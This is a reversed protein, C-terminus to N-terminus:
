KPVQGGIGLCLRHLTHPEKMLYEATLAGWPFQATVQFHRLLLVYDDDVQIGLARSEQLLRLDEQFAAQNYQDRAEYAGLQGVFNERTWLFTIGPPIPGGYASMTLGVDREAKPLLYVYLARCRESPDIEPHECYFLLGRRAYYLAAGYRKAEGKSVFTRMGGVADPRGLVREIDRRELSAILTGDITGEVVNVGPQSSKEIVGAILSDLVAPGYGVGALSQRADSVAQLVDEGPIAFNLNQGDLLQMTALGVVAGQTDLVPGGSSGSSIPASIQLLRGYAPHDRLGSLLGDSVTFELGKPHGIAIVADGLAPPPGRRFRLAKRSREAVLLIALDRARNLVVIGAPHAQDPADRFRVRVQVAGAVVHANTAVLGLSDVVFGSGLATGHWQREAEIVAVSPAARAV